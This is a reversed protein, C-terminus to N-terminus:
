TVIKFVLERLLQYENQMSGIGKSKVDFERIHHIAAVAQRATYHRMGEKVDKLAYPSKAELSRMLSSESKDRLMTAIVLKSFYNFLLGTTVVTPNNKQNKEFYEVIRLAKVYDKISLAGVLEFNNFDKSIGINQEILQPTIGRSIDPGAAVILKDIEGFLKSLPNGIHDALLATSKDDIGIKKGNCYDKIAAALQYDRLQASKFVVAGSKAAMKMLASTANLTDGKMVVVFVTTPTPRGVYPALAELGAKANPMGQAEKLIVLRRPAMMPYQQACAVVEALNADAGYYVSFNFDRDDAEVVRNELSETILNIYYPEDGMLLYVPAFKGARIAMLIDRYNPQSASTKAM